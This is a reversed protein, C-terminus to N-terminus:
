LLHSFYPPIQSHSSIAVRAQQTLSTAERKDGAARRARALWIEAEAVLPSNVDLMKLRTALAQRLLATSRVADGHALLIRADVIDLRAEERAAAAGLRQHEIAARAQQSSTAAAELAGSSVQVEALMVRDVLQRRDAALDDHVLGAGQMLALAEQPRDFRAALYAREVQNRTAMTAAAKPDQQGIIQSAQEILALARAQNGGEIQARAALHLYAATALNPHPGQKLVVVRELLPAGEEARGYDVLTIGLMSLAKPLRFTENAGKTREQTEVAQRLYPLAEKPGVCKSLFVGYYVLTDVYVDHERGYIQEAATLSDRFNQDAASLELREGQVQALMMLIFPLDLPHANPLNRAARLSEAFYREAAELDDTQEAAQGELVLAEMEKVGDHLAVFQATAQHAHRASAPWDLYQLHSAWQFHLEAQLRPELPSADAIRQVEELVPGRESFSAATTMAESLTLLAEVVRGDDPRYLTRLLAIRQRHLKVAEDDLGFETLLRGLTRLVEAKAEPADDMSAEIKQTGATLLERATTAQAKHPDAQDHTNARFVDTLFAQVAQATRAENAAIRAQEGAKRAQWLAVGLGGSLALLVALAAGAALKNRLIFKHARYGLSDPRAHVPVGTLFRDIDEVLAAATAYREAPAKKLAKLVITDLDGKLRRRLSPDTAAVSPAPPDAAVIAEELAWRSDHKLKYPRTGTLLEYLLVGLSYVDAAVTLPEGLIQEPAAYGPTLARGGIQTLATERTGEEDMLKAIGFDLLRVRGDSSVLINGPKLDRHLVLRGHAYAVATAVQAFAALRAGLGLKHAGVYKDIPEGEVYELALYPQGDSAFGADYLRAINPHELAALVDRERLLRERFQPNAAALPLKLAVQRKLAGDIREALWVSGMGGRGLLRILRYPGIQDAAARGEADDLALADLKPLTALFDTTGQADAQEILRKLTPGLRADAEALTQLWAARAPPPMELAERLLRNLADLDDPEIRM